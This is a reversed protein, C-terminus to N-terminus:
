SKAPPQLSNVVRELERRPLEGLAWFNSEGRQLSVAKGMGFDLPRKDMHQECAKSTQILTLSNIGDVYRTLAAKSHCGPCDYVYYGERRYGSPLYTPEVLPMGIERSVTAPDKMQQAFDSEAVWKVPTQSPPMPLFQEPSATKNYTISHFVTASVLDNEANKEESRLIVGTVDDIWFTRSGGGGKPDLYVETSPRGAVIARAKISARCNALVMALDDAENPQSAVPDMPDTYLSRRRPDYRWNMGPKTRGAIVGALSGLKYEIRYKGGKANYFTAESHLIRSGYNAFTTAQATFDENMPAQMAAQLLRTARPDDRSIRSIGILGGILLFIVGVAVLQKM